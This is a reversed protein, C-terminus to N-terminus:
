RGSELKVPYGLALTLNAEAAALDDNTANAPVYCIPCRGGRRGNLKPREPNQAKNVRALMPKFAPDNALKPRLHRGIFNKSPCTQGMFEMLGEVLGASAPVAGLRALATEIFLTAENLGYNFGVGNAPPTRPINFTEKILSMEQETPNPHGKPTAVPVTRGNTPNRIDTMTYNREFYGRMTAMRHKLADLSAVAGGPATSAGCRHLVTKSLPIARCGLTRQWELVQVDCRITDASIIESPPLVYRNSVLTVVAKDTRRVSRVRDIAQIMEATELANIVAEMNPDSHGSQELLVPTNPDHPDTVAVDRRHIDETSFDDDLGFLARYMGFIVHRPVRYDGLVILHKSNQADNCGRTYAFHQYGINPGGEVLPAHVSKQPGDTEGAGLATQTRKHTVIHDVPPVNAVRHAGSIWQRMTEGGETLSKGDQTTLRRKDANIGVVQRLHLNRAIDTDHLSLPKVEFDAFLRTVTPLNGTGDLYLVSKINGQSLLRPKHAVDWVVMRHPESKPGTATATVRRLERQHTLDDRATELLGLLHRWYPLKWIQVMKVPDDNSLPGTAHSVRARLAVALHRVAEIVGGLRDQASTTGEPRAIAPLTGVTASAERVDDALQRILTQITADGLRQEFTSAWGSAWSLRKELAETGEGSEDVEQNVLAKEALEAIHAYYDRAVRLADPTLDALKALIDPTLHNQEVLVPMVTEDIVIYDAHFDQLGAGSRSKPLDTHPILLIDITESNPAINDPHQYGQAKCHQFVPCRNCVNEQISMGAAGFTSQSDFRAKIASQTLDAPDLARLAKTEADADDGFIESLYDGDVEARAQAAKDAVNKQVDMCNERRRGKKIQVRLRDSDYGLEVLRDEIMARVEELVAHDPAAYIFKQGNLAADVIRRASARSKGSGPAANSWAISPTSSGNAM